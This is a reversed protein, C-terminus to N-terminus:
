GIERSGGRGGKEERGNVICHVLSSLPLSVPHSVIAHSSSTPFCQLQPICHYHSIIAAVAVIACRFQSANWYPDAAKSAAVKAGKAAKKWSQNM